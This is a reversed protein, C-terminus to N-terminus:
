RGSACYSDAGHFEFTGGANTLNFTAITGGCEHAIGADRDRQLFTMRLMLNNDTM